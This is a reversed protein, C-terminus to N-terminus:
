SRDQKLSKLEQELAEVRDQLQSIATNTAQIFDAFM